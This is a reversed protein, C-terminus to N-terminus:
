QNESFHNQNEYVLNPKGSSINENESFFKACNTSDQKKMQPREYFFYINSNSTTRQLYGKTELERLGDYYSDKKIGWSACAQRSLDFQYGDQNKNLYLWMKLSSGKLDQMASQLAELNM